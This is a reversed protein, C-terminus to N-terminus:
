WILPSNHMVLNNNNNNGAGSNWGDRYNSSHGSPYSTGPHAQGNSYGISYCSPTGAMDCHQPDPLAEARKGNSMMAAIAGLSVLISVIKTVPSTEPM